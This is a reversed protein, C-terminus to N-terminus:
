SALHFVVEQPEKSKEQFLRILDSIMAQRFDGKQPLSKYHFGQFFEVGLWSLKILLSSMTNKSSSAIEMAFGYMSYRIRIKCPVKRLDLAIHIRAGLELIRPQNQAVELMVPSLFEVLEEPRRGVTEAVSSLISWLQEPFRVRLKKWVDKKYQM